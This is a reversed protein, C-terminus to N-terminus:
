LLKSRIMCTFSVCLGCTLEEEDQPRQERLSLQQVFCLNLCYASHIDISECIHAESRIYDQVDEVIMNVGQRSGTELGQLDLSDKLSVVLLEGPM